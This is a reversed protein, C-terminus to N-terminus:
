SEVAYRLYLSGDGFRREDLLDLRLATPPFAQLGGGLTLPKVFLHVEDVLGVEFASAALTPGFVSLPGPSEEKVRRVAEPDFSRELRTRETVVDTLTTSYVVKETEQWWRAFDGEHGSADAFEPDTEWVTMLEYTRRGYLQTTVRGEVDNLFAFVEPTPAGWDHNGDPDNVYGDLSCNVVYLLSSM